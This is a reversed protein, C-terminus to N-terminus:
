VGKPHLPMTGTCLSWALPTPSTLQAWSIFVLMTDFALYLVPLTPAAYPPAQTCERLLSHKRLNRM